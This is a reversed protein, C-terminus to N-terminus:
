FDITPMSKKSTKKEIKGEKSKEDIKSPGKTARQTTTQGGRLDFIYTKSCYYQHNQPQARKAGPDSKAEFKTERPTGRPAKQAWFPHGVVVKKLKQAGRQGFHGGSPAFHGGLHGFHGGSPTFHGGLHGFHGRPPAFHGGLHSFRGVSWVVRRGM